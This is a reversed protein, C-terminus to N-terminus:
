RPEKSEVVRFTDETKEDRYVKTGYKRTDHFYVKYGKLVESAKKNDLLGLWIKDDIESRKVKSQPSNDDTEEFAEGHFVDSDETPYDTKVVRVVKGADDRYRLYMFDHPVLSRKPPDKPIITTQM